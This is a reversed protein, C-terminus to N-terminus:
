EERLRAIVRIVMLTAISSYLTVGYLDLIGDLYTGVAPLIDLADSYGALGVAVALACHTTPNNADVGLYGYTLGLLVVAIPLANGPVMGPAVGEVIACLATLGVVIKKGM